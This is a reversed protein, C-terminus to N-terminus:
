VDYLNLLVLCFVIFVKLYQKTRHSNSLIIEHTWIVCKRLACQLSLVYLPKTNGNETDLLIWSNDVCVCVCVCM